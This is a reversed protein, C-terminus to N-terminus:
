GGSALQTHALTDSASASCGTGVVWVQVPGPTSVQTAIVTAPANQFRSIDVLIVLSGAAVRNLCGNLSSVSFSRFTGASGNTGAAPAQTANSGAGPAASSRSKILQAVESTLKGSTFNSNTSIATIHRHQGNRTYSLSPGYGTSQANSFPAAAHPGSPAGSASPSSSGSHQAIELGSVALVAVAAAAAAARLAVPWGAMPLRRNRQRRGAGRGGAKTGAPATDDSASRAPQAAASEASAAPTAVARLSAERALASQIMATVHEPLPPEEVSALLAPIEALEADLERCRACRSLHSRVRWSRWRGLDGERFRALEETDVHRTM